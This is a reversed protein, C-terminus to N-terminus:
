NGSFQTVKAFLKNLRDIYQAPLAPRLLSVLNSELHELSGTGFMVVHIGPEYRCYRYAADTLSAAGGPSFLFDIPNNNELYETDLIGQLSLQQLAEQLEVIM